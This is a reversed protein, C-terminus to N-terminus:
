KSYGTFYKYNLIYNNQEATISSDVEKYINDYNPNLAWTGPAGGVGPTYTYQADNNKDRSQLVYYDVAFGYNALVNGLDDKKKITINKITTSDVPPLEGNAAPTAPLTYGSKVKIAENSDKKEIYEMQYAISSNNQHNARSIRSVNAYIQAMILSAIGLIALAVLCEVLTFGRMKKM